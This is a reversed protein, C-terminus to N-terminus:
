LLKPTLIKLGSVKKSYEYLFYNITDVIDFLECIYESDEDTEIDHETLNNINKLEKVVKEKDAKNAARDLENIFSSINEGNSYKKFLKDDIDGMYELLINKKGDKKKKIQQKKQIPVIKKIKQM